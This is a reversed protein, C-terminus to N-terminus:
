KSNKGAPPEAGKIKAKTGDKLTKMTEYPGVVVQDGEALGKLIEIQTANSIGTTVEVEKVVGDKLIFVYKKGQRERLAELPVALVKTRSETEIEADVAMGPKLLNDKNNFDITLIFVQINGAQVTQPSIKSITGTFTEGLYANTTLNVKKGVAVKGIDIEDLRAKVVLQTLDAMELLPTGTTVVNGPQVLVQLITGSIPATVNTERLNKVAEAYTYRANDLSAQLAAYEEPLVPKQLLAREAETLNAKAVQVEAEAAAIEEPTPGKKLKEIELLANQYAIELDKLELAFLQDQTEVQRKVKEADNKAKEEYYLGKPYVMDERQVKVEKIYLKALEIDEETLKNQEYRAKALDVANKAREAAMELAKIDEEKPGAKLQNLRAEAAALAAKAREVAAEANQPANKEKERLAALQSETGAIGAYAQKVQQEFSEPSYTLLTQAKHVLDGERVNVQEILGSNRSMIKITEAPEVQANALVTLKMEQRQATVTEVEILKEAKDDQLALNGAVVLAIVLLIVGSIVVPKKRFATRM